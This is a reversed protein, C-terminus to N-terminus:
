TEDTIVDVTILRGDESVDTVKFKSERPLVYEGIDSEGMFMHAGAPVNVKMMVPNGGNADIPPFPLDPVQGYVRAVSFIAAWEPNTTVSVYAHDDFVQGPVLQKMINASAAMGRYLTVPQTIVDRAAERDLLEIRRQLSPGFYFGAPFPEGPKHSRLTSNIIKNDGASIYSNIATALQSNHRGNLLDFPQRGHYTVNRTVPLKASIASMRQLADEVSEAPSERVDKENYLGAPLHSVQRLVKGYTGDEFAFTVSDQDHRTIFGEGHVPHSIMSEPSAAFDDDEPSLYVYGKVWKGTHPDRPEAPNFSKKRYYGASAHCIQLDDPTVTMRKVAGIMSM